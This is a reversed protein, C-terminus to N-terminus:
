VNQLIKEIELNNNIINYLNRILNCELNYKNILLYANNLADLGEITMGTEEKIEELKKGQGLLIGCKKNRSDLSLSTTLLDGLGSLGYFTEEKAGLILGIEKIEELGKTIYYSITSTTYNLSELIGTGISIINKLAGGIQIGIKDEIYNLKFNNTELIKILDKDGYFDVFCLKEKALEEAHSPGSIISTEKKLEEYIVDSLLKDNELGKSALVIKQNTIYPKIEISTKRLVYSPTVLIIINSNKIAEEYNLYCMTDNSLKIKKEILCEHNINISDKEENTYSWMKIKNNKSFVHALACGFSGSGIIAIQKM